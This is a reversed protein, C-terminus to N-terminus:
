RVEGAERTLDNLRTGSGFQCGAAMPPGKVLGALGQMKHTGFGKLRHERGSLAKGSHSARLQKAGSKLQYIPNTLHNKSALKTVELASYDKYMLLNFHNGKDNTAKTLPM